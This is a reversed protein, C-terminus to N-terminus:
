PASPLTVPESQGPVLYQNPGLEKVPSPETIKVNDYAFTQESVSDDESEIRIRRALHDKDDFWIYQTEGSQAPDVVKYKFCQRDGCAEKGQKEYTTKKAPDTEEDPNKFDYDYDTAPNEDPKTNKQKWWTGDSAKTFMNEGINIIEYTMEGSSVMRTKDGDSEFTAKDTSGGGTNTIEVHYQKLDKWGTIFKCLDKDQNEKNCADEAAKQTANDATTGTDKDKNKVRWGAFGIAGVVVVAVVILGVHAVGRADSRLSTKM